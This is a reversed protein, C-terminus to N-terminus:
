EVAEILATTMAVMGTKVGMAAHNRILSFIEISFIRPINKDNAPIRTISTFGSKLKEVSGLPIM